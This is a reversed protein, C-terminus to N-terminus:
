KNLSNYYRQAKTIWWYDDTPPAGVADTSNGVGAGFLICNVGAAKAEDIHQGYTIRNGSVSVKSDNWENTGFYSLRAGSTVFTDGFFYTGASDEYHQETNALEAFSGGGNYPNSATSSNLHGVPIQWLTVPKGTVEHLTKTYYLYNNWLDANWLWRSSAPNAAAGEEYAGDLGYKDISIFDAGYSLIGAKMYYNATVTAANKIFSLGNTYGMLETSHMLGQGPVGVSYSWTNFQWGFTASSYYKNIVYNISKVIGELTNPFDPDVGRKLVGSSYAGQVGNATIKTPDANDNQMMYGLFDPELIIGVDEGEDYEDCTQIFFLLDKYYAEMYTVDNIHNKDVDYSESGDPINYYVFYPVIGLKLSETIYSKVRSGPDAPNWSQWGSIAGGNIYIYRVDLRKNTDDNATARLFSLDAASDETVQGIAVYSPMGPLTGNSNKVKIGFHRTKGTSNEIIKIGSRGAKNGQLRLKTGNVISAEVVTRNSSVVSYSPNTASDCTLDYTQTGQSMVHQKAIDEEDVVAVEIDATQVTGVQRSIENSMSSGYQNLLEVKYFYIGPKTKSVPISLTQREPSNDTLTDTKLINYSGINGKKEYLIYRTGNNGYEMYVNVNFNMTNTWDDKELRISGPAGTAKNGYPVTLDIAETTPEETTPEETTPEETTPEETTPEETITEGTIPEGNWDYDVVNYYPNVPKIIENYLYEHGSKTPMQRKNYLGSAIQYVSIKEIGGYVISGDTTKAYPRIYLSSSYFAPNKVFKMTMIYHDAEPNDSFNYSSYGKSTASFGYVNESGGVTMQSALVESSLAYLLGRERVNGGRDTEAYITRFGEYVPNIQYGVIEITVGTAAQVRESIQMSSFVISLACVLAGARKIVRKM